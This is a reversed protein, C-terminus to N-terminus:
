MYAIADSADLSGCTFLEDGGATYVTSLEEEEEEEGDEPGDKGAKVVCTSDKLSADASEGGCPVPAAVEGGEALCSAAPVEPDRPSTPVPAEPDRPSTPVPAEEYSCRCISPRPMAMMEEKWEEEQQEEEEEDEKDQQRRLVLNQIARTVAAEVVVIAALRIEDYANATIPPSSVTPSTTARVKFAKPLLWTGVSPRLM